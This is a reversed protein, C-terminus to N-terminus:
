PAPRFAWAVVAPPVFVTLAFLKQALGELQGEGLPVVGAMVMAIAGFALLNAALYARLGTPAIRWLSLTLLVPLAIFGAGFAGGSHYPHPQPFFGASFTILAGSFLGIAPLLALWVPVGLAGLRKPLTLAVVTIVLGLGIICLSFVRGFPSAADGLDSATTAFLRYGPYFPAFGAQLGFYLAPILLCTWFNLRIM